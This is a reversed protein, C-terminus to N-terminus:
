RVIRAITISGPTKGVYFPLGFVPMLAGTDPNIGYAFITDQGCNTVYLFQGSPDMTIQYHDSGRPNTSCTSFPSGFIPYLSGSDPNVTFASINNSAQNVVYLYKCFPDM